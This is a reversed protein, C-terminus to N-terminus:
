ADLALLGVIRLLACRVPGCYVLLRPADPLYANMACREIHVSMWEDVVSWRRLVAALPAAQGESRVRAREPEDGPEGHAQAAPQAGRQARAGQREQADNPEAEAGGQGRGRDLAAGHLPPQGPTAARTLPVFESTCSCPTQFAAVFASGPCCCSQVKFHRCPPRTWGRATQPSAVSKQAGCASSSVQRVRVRM